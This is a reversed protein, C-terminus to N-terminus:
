EGSRNAITWEPIPETQPLGSRSGPYTRLRETNGYEGFAVGNPTEQRCVGTVLNSAFPPHRDDRNVLVRPQGNEQVHKITM